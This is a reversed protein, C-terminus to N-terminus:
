GGGFLIFAPFNGMPGKVKTKNGMSTGTDHGHYRLERIMGLAVSPEITSLGWSSKLSPHTLMLCNYIGTKRSVWSYSGLTEGTMVRGHRQAGKSHQSGLIVRHQHTRCEMRYHLRSGSSLISRLGRFLEALHCHALRM